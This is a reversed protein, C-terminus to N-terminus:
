REIELGCRPCLIPLGLIHRTEHKKPNRGKMISCLTGPPVGRYEPLDAIERWKLRKQTRLYLLREQLKDLKSSVTYPSVSASESM